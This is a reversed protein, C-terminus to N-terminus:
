TDPSIIEIIHKADFVVLEFIHNLLPQNASDFLLMQRCIEVCWVVCSNICISDQLVGTHANEVHKKHIIIRTVINLYTLIGVYKLQTGIRHM